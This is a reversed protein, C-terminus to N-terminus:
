PVRMRILMFPGAQQVPQRRRRTRAGELFDTIKGRLVRIHHFRQIAQRCRDSRLVDRPPM